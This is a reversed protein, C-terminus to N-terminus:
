SVTDEYLVTQTIKEIVKVTQGAKFTNPYKYAKGIFGNRHISREAALARYDSFKVEDVVKGDLLIDAEVAEDKEFCCAWINFQRGKDKAAVHLEGFRILPLGKSLFAKHLDFRKLTYEYLTFDQHNMKRILSLEDESLQYADSSKTTNKNIDLVKIDTEYYQNFIAISESYRETVGIFGIADAWVGNLAKSQMNAFRNEKIFDAFSGNYGHLRSFHEYHSRVQQAPHRVFTVVSEPKFFPAYKPYIVHGSLFKANQKISKAALFRDQLEYEYKLIDPHTEKAGKGYDFYTSESGFFQEAAVRFSSGATKPIHIFFLPFKHNM